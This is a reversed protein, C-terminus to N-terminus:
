LEVKHVTRGSDNTVYASDGKYLYSQRCGCFIVALMDNHRAGEGDSINASKINCDAIHAKLEEAGRDKDLVTVDEGQYIYTEGERLIKVTLM